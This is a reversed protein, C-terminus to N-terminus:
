PKAPEIATVVMAGDIQEAKFKVKDGTKLKDLMAPDKVRFVMTMAPMGLNAIEGHKLTLKKNETDIKRVEADAMDATAFAGLPAMGAILLSLTLAHFKKM